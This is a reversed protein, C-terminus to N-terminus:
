IKFFLKSRDNSSGTSESELSASSVINVEERCVEDVRAYVLGSRLVLLFNVFYFFSKTEAKFFHTMMKTYGPLQILDLVGLM